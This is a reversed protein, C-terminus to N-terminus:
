KRPYYFGHVGCIIFGTGPPPLSGSANSANVQYYLIQNSFFRLNEPILTKPDGETVLINGLDRAYHFNAKLRWALDGSGQVFGSGTYIHFRGLILGDYGKPAQLTIVNVDGASPAPLPIPTIIIFPSANAPLNEFDMRDAEGEDEGDNVRYCHPLRGCSLAKPDILDLLRFERALCLDYQNLALFDLTRGIGSFAGRGAGSAVAAPPPPPPPVSGAFYYQGVAGSSLGNLLGGIFTVATFDGSTGVATIFTSAVPDGNIASAVSAWDINLKGTGSNYGLTCVILVNSPDSDTTNIVITSGGSLLVTEFTVFGGQIGPQASTVTILAM